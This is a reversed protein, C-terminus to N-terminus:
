LGFCKIIWNGILIDEVRTLGLWFYTLGPQSLVSCKVSIKGEKKIKMIDTLFM